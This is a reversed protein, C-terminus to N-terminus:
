AFKKRREAAAFLFEDHLQRALREAEEQTLRGIDITEGTEKITLIYPIVPLEVTVEKKILISM